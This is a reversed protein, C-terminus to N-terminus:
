HIFTHSIPLTFSDQTTQLSPLHETWKSMIVRKLRVNNYQDNSGDLPHQQQQVTCHNMIEM